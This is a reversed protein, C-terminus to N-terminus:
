KRSLPFGARRMTTPIRPASSRCAISRMSGRRDFAPRCAPEARRVRARWLPGALRKGTVHDSNAYQIAFSEAYARPNARMAGYAPLLEYDYVHELSRTRFVTGDIFTLDSVSLGSNLADAIEVISHEGMGYSVLDANSDLLISRKLSDSWYDYHALRRLSAEIGGIIIPVDKFVRRILNSYVVVAHDPRLGGRVGLLSPM